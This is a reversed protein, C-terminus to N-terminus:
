EGYTQMHPFKKTIKCDIQPHLNDTRLFFHCSVEHLIISVLASFIILYASVTSSNVTRWYAVTLSGSCNSFADMIREIALLILRKTRIYDRWFRLIALEAESLKEM